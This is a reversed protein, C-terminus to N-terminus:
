AGELLPAQALAALDASGTCFCAIRLQEVLGELHAVLADTGAIAAPLVGAAIATMDAGLRIAKASDLGSTLGGSAVVTVDPCTARVSRLADATPIGWDRFAEAKARGQETRARAGEVAAWSTGGLGAVDIGAVGVDVLRRATAGGLGAGVEKALVPFSSRTCVEEIKSLLGRWDTDGGEQVAEQLPNLHLVLADAEIMDVARRASDPGDWTRLQAAGFNALIPVDPASQRLARGLGSDGQGELAIRQSGVGFGVKVQACAEAIHRNLSASVQPGGTMSNVFLPAAVQRGVFQTTLDIAALDLNPLAEHMFRIREFGTPTTARAAEGQMVIDIHEVKRRAIDSM